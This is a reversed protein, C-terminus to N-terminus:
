QREARYPAVDPHNFTRSPIGTIYPPTEESLKRHNGRLMGETIYRLVGAEDVDELYVFFAGDDETSSVHLTVVPYGTIETDHELAASTYTM